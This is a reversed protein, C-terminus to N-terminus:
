ETISLDGQILSCFKAELYVARQLENDRFLGKIDTWITFASARPKHVIDFVGKTVTTYLWNIICYDVQCWEADRAAMAPPITVHADLGFKGLVTDFFCRWQNYNSDTIDLLIPVHNRINVTQVVSAPAPQPNVLNSDGSDSSSASHAQSAM